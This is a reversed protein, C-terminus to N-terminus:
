SIMKRRIRSLTEPTIGLMSAIYQLQVTNFIMPNQLLLETVKQEATMSIQNFVRNELAILCKVMFLKELEPWNPVYNGINKYDEKSITYLECKSLAQINWRSPTGFMLSSIDTVFLGETSIWQTIEKDGTKSRAFIRVYGSKVFSLSSVYQGQKLLYTDKAVTNEHFMNAVPSLDKGGIGFYSGIYQEIEQM